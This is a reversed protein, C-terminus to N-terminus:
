VQLHVHRRFQHETHGISQRNVHPCDAHHCELQQVAHVREPLVRSVINVNSWKCSCFPLCKDANEFHLASTKTRHGVLVGPLVTFTSRRHPVIGLSGQRRIWYWANGHRTYPNLVDSLSRDSGIKGLMRRAGSAPSLCWMKLCRHRWPWCIAGKM